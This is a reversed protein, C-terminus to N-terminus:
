KIHLPSMSNFFVMIRNPNVNLDVCEPWTKLVRGYAVPRDVEDYETAGEDFAGRLVKM